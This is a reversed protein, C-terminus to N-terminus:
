KKSFVPDAKPIAKLAEEVKGDSLVGRRGLGQNEM